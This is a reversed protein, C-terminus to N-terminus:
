GCPTSCPGARDLSDLSGQGVTLVTLLTHLRELEPHPMAKVAEYVKVPDKAQSPLWELGRTRRPCLREGNGSVARRLGRMGGRHASPPPAEGEEFPSRPNPDLTVPGDLRQREADSRGRDRPGQAPQRAFGGHRRPEILSLNRVVPAVYEAQVKPKAPARTAEVM